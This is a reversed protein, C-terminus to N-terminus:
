AARNSKAQLFGLFSHYENTIETFLSEAILLERERKFGTGILAKEIKLSLYLSEIRLIEQGLAKLHEITDM